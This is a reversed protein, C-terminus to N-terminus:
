IKELLKSTNSYELYIFFDYLKSTNRDLLRFQENIKLAGISRKELYKNFLHDKLYANKSASKNNFLFVPFKYVEMLSESSNCKM